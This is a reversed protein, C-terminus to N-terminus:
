RGWAVPLATREDELDRLQPESPSGASMREVMEQCKNMAWSRLAPGFRRIAAIALVFFAAVLVKRM